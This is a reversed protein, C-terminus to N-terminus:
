QGEKIKELISDTTKEYTFEEQLSLGEKNVRSAKVREIVKECAEIFEDEDFDYINGQNYPTGEQFFMGDYVPIKGSPNVLVSNSENAWEKYASVNLIVAHKGMAVSQFEPLAWGEGGSMGLIVDASNLFDNYLTNKAM